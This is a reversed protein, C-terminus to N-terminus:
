SLTHIKSHALNQFKFVPCLLFKLSSPKLPTLQLFHINTCYQLKSNLLVSLVNMSPCLKVHAGSVLVQIVKEDNTHLGLRKAM